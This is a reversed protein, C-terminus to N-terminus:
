PNPEFVITWQGRENLFFSQPDGFRTKTKWLCCISSASIFNARSVCGGSKTDTSSEIMLRIDDVQVAPIGTGPGTEDFWKNLPATACDYWSVM